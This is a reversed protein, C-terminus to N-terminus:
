IGLKHFFIKNRMQADKLVKDWSIVEVYLNINGMWQFWGLGDPMPKFDKERELWTEVKATLDCVVFGYFPTNEAILMKRGEPTKYKGDQIDNVYRVIQQVPDEQASPNVFDDRQPKKFEFITIPNSAENDGRFLVRRNFVLLDPREGSKRDVPVDSSVYNTFNLREDVIWLNHDFFPTRETDGKRPFIIDHVVGESSYSGSEDVQLSKEFIDLLKRRLAIYHILDNKSTYAIKSVIEIVSDKVNDFNAESLLKAVDRKISIEQEFKDSQLRTEIEENTPNYPMSSLDIQNVTDRHWPADEDVYSQVRNRKKEQRLSIESGIADQAITAANSEIASQAIGLFLESEMAFEFGARELSVNDDLYPGFVYAKIIYNREHDIEEKGDTEYFEDSFEPIYKQLVSGSVERKHAVLSIRSRQHRPTYLKFIRAMFAEDNEMAKLTFTNRTVPLEQIYASVENSIFDNLRLAGSGDLESLVIEPCIYDQTIFYPLLREVLNKAVTSLKKDLTRPKKLGTLSVVTGCDSRETETIQERVIIDHEKGMSFSRHKFKSGEQYISKVHLDAFYKLCIFRGFGKGGETIKRDTYLTDFSDRHENTFGIGNDRIEFGTIDPLSGDLEAQTNRVARVSIAGRMIGSEEIADIANVIMEIIPTYVTTHARINDIARKININSM